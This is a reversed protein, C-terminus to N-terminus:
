APIKQVLQTLRSVIRTATRHHILKTSAAKDVLPIVKKLLEKTPHQRLEKMATRLRTRAGKNRLRRQENQRSRKIASLHRGKGLKSKEKQAKEDAM